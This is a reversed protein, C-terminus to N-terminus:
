SLGILLHNRFCVGSKIKRENEELELLCLRALDENTIQMVYKPQFGNHKVFSMILNRMGWQLEKKESNQNGDQIGTIRGRADYAYVQAARDARQSGPPATEQQLGNIGYSYELENGDAFQSQIRKRDAQYLHKKRCSERM